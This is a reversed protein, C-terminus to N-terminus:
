PAVQTLKGNSDIYWNRIPSGGPTVAFRKYNEGTSINGTLVQRGSSYTDFTLRAATSGGQPSLVGTLHIKAHDAASEELYVDNFKKQPINLDNSPTIIASGSMTFTSEVKVYVGGGAASHSGGAEHNYEATCGTIGGGSMTFMGNALSVGGGVAAGNFNTAQAKCGTISGGSMTFRAPSSSDFRDVYVGGGTLPSTGGNKVVCNSITGGEMKCEATKGHAAYIYIGGGYESATCGSIDAGNMMTLTTNTGDTDPAIAFGGGDQATNGSMSGSFTCSGGNLYMGGGQEGATNNFISSGQKITLEPTNMAYIGGGNHSSNSSIVAGTELTLTRGNFYIGGGSDGAKCGTLTSGSMVLTGGLVLIGGGQSNQGSGTARGNKLTLNKLTLTTDSGSVKFIRHPPSPRDAPIPSTDNSNADLGDNAATGSIGKITINRTIEIESSNGPANTAKVMGQIVITENAGASAVATKLKAWANETSGDILRALELANGKLQTTWKYVESPTVTNPTVDFKHIDAETLQYPTEGSAESGQVVIRGATYDTSHLTIKAAFTQSLAGTVTIKAHKNVDSDHKALYVDNDAAVQASGSMNFVSETNLFVGRGSGGAAVTNTRISGGEMDARCRAEISIAGGNQAAECHEIDVNKLRLRSGETLSAAGGTDGFTGAAKGNKLTINELTLAASSGTVKFIRHATNPKNTVSSPVFSSSNADLVDTAATGSKGKITIHKTIEIEGSNAEPSSIGDLSVQDKTAQITGSITIVDGDKADEIAQKLRLWAGTGSTITLAARNLVLETGAANARLEWEEGSPLDVLKFVQVVGSLATGKVLPKDRQGLYNDPQVNIHAATGLIGASICASKSSDQRDLYVSNSAPDDATGIKTNGEITLVTSDSRKLFVGAARGSTEVTNGQITADKLTCHGQWIFIGGGTKGAYNGASGEGGVMGGNITLTGATYLAGGSGESECHRIICGTMTLMGDNEIQVAGGDDTGSVKGNTLTLNELTLEGGSRVTFIRHANSALEAKNADLIATEANGNKSKITIKKTIPIEGYNGDATAQITGNIFFVDGDSAGAVATKLETWAQPGSSIELGSLFNTKYYVVTEPSTDFGNKVAWATLKYVANAVAPMEITLPTIGSNKHIASGNRELSYHIEAGDTPTQALLLIKEVNSQYTIEHPDTETGSKKTVALYGSQVTIDIPKVKNTSTSTVVEHISSLGATDQLRLRYQKKTGLLVEANTKVRLIWKESSSPLTDPSSDGEIDAPVLQATEGADLLTGAAGSIDFGSGDDKCKLPVASYTGSGEAISLNAIDKHLPLSNVKADMGKAEFFLVYYYKGQADPAATKGIARYTLDPPPTNAKINFTFTQSFKRGDDAYLTITSGINNQGYEHKTLFATTYRLMLKSGSAQTLTYDTGQAPLNTGASGKVGPRFVVIDASSTPQDPMKFNFNKPNRVTLTIAIDKGSVTSPISQIGEKDTQLTVAPDVSYEIIAAESSWYSLYDEINTQYNKCGAYVISNILILFTLLKRM